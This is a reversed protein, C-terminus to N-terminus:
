DVYKGELAECLARLRGLTERARELSRRLEERPRWERGRSLAQREEELLAAYGADAATLSQIYLQTAGSLDLAIAVRRAAREVERFLHAPPIAPDATEYACGDLALVAREIFALIERDAATDVGREGVREAYRAVTRHLEAYVGALAVVEGHLAAWGAYLESHAMVTACPPIFRGDPEFALTESARRVRGVVLARAAADADAGLSVRYRARLLAAQNPNAADAGVTGEDPEKGPERVLYVLLESSGALDAKRFEGRVVAGGGVEV